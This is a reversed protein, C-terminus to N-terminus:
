PINPLGHPSRGSCPRPSQPDRCANPPSGKNPMVSPKGHGTSLALHSDSHQCLLFRILGPAPGPARRGGASIQYCVTVTGCVGTILLPLLTAPHPSVPMEPRGHGTTMPSTADGLTVTQMPPMVYVCTSGGACSHKLVFHDDTDHFFWMECGCPRGTKEM